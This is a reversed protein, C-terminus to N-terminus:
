PADSSLALLGGLAAACATETRLTLSGLRGRRYGLTVCERVEEDTLGGEPGVVLAVDDTPALARLWAGFADEARPDLCLGVPGSANSVPRSEANATEKIAVLAAALLSPPDIRPVDGRGAQRAAEVAIRRWRAVRDADDFRLRPISRATVVPVIRTAGLETADRVVADMKDAKGIAQILTVRRQPRLSAPRPAGVRARAGRREIAILEADAEVAAEPDFAIFRDGERLRRVRVVYAVAEPPLARDGPALAALPVRLPGRSM